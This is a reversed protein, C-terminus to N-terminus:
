NLGFGKPLRQLIRGIADRVGDVIQITNAGPQRYIPIYVQRKGNIRVINTQIQNSDETHAVDKIFVAGGGDVKIPFGNIEDVTDVMGNAHIQYDLTGFKADGTPIMLNNS